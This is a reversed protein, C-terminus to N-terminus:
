LRPMRDLSLRAGFVRGENGEASQLQRARMAPMAGAYHAELGSRAGPQTLEAAVLADLMGPPLRTGPRGEAGGGGVRAAVELLEGFGSLPAGDPRPAAAAVAQVGGLHPAHRPRGQAAPRRASRGGLAAAAHAAAALGGRDNRWGRGQLPGSPQA